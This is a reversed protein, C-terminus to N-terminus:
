RDPSAATISDGRLIKEKKTEEKRGFLNRVWLNKLYFSCVNNGVVYQRGKKFFIENLLSLFNQDQVKAGILKKLTM